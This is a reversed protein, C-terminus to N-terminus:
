DCGGYYTAGMATIGSITGECNGAFQMGPYLMCDYTVTFKITATNTIMINAVTAGGTIHVGYDCSWLLNNDAYLGLNCHTPWYFWGIPSAVIDYSFSITYFNANNVTLAYTEYGLELLLIDVETASTLVDRCADYIEIHNSNASTDTTCTANCGTVVCEVYGVVTSNLTFVLPNAPNFTDYATEDYWLYWTYTPSSGVNTGVATYTVSTNTPVPVTSGASPYNSTISISPTVPDNHGITCTNSTCTTTTVCGDIETVVLRISTATVNDTYYYTNEGGHGSKASTWSLGSGRQWDYHPNSGLHDTTEIAFFLITGSCTPSGNYYLEHITVSPAQKTLITLAVINSTTANDGDSDRCVLKIQNGNTFGTSDYTSATEGFQATTGIYWQYLPTGAFNQASSSFTILTDECVYNKDPYILVTRAVTGTVVVRIQRSSVTSSPTPCQVGSYFDCWYIDNNGVFTTPSYSYTQNSGVHTTTGARLRHWTYISEFAGSTSTVSFVVPTNNPVNVIWNGDDDFVHLPNSEITISVTTEPTITSVFTAYCPNNRVCTTLTTTVRVKIEVNASAAYTLASSTEAQITGDVWWAYSLTGGVNTSATYTVSTRDCVPDTSPSISATMEVIPNVELTITNSTATSTTACLQNSIMECRIQMGDWSSPLALTSLTGNAIHRWESFDADWYHWQFRPNTGQYIYSSSYYVTDGECIPPCKTSFPDDSCVRFITIKPTVKAIVQFKIENSLATGCNSISMECQLTDGNVLTTTPGYSATVGWSGWSGNLGWRYYTLNAGRNYGTATVTISTGECFSYLNAVIYVSPRSPRYLIM